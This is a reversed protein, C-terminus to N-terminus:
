AMETVNDRGFGEAAMPLMLGLSAEPMHDGIALVQHRSEGASGMKDRNQTISQSWLTGRCVISSRQIPFEIGGIGGAGKRIQTPPHLHQVNFVVAWGLSHPHPMGAAPAKMAGERGPHDTRLNAIGEQRAEVRCHDLLQKWVADSRGEISADVGTPLAAHPAKRIPQASIGAAVFDREGDAFRKMARIGIEFGKSESGALPDEPWGFVLESGTSSQHLEIVFHNRCHLSGGCM